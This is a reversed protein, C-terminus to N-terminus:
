RGPQQEQLRRRRDAGGRAERLETRLRENEEVAKQYSEEAETRHAHLDQVEQELRQIERKATLSHALVPKFQNAASSRVRDAGGCKARLEINAAQASRYNQEAEDRLGRMEVLEQELRRIEEGGAKMLEDCDRVPASSSVHASPHLTVRADAVSRTAPVSTYLVTCVVAAFLLLLIRPRLSRSRAAGVGRRTVSM